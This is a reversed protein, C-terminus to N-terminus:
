FGRKPKPVAEVEIKMTRSRETAILTQLTDLLHQLSHPTYGGIWNELGEDILRSAQAFKGMAVSRGFTKGAVRKAVADQEEQSLGRGRIFMEGSAESQAARVLSGLNTMQLHMEYEEAVALAHANFTRFHRAKRWAYYCDLTFLVVVTVIFAVRWPSPAYANWAYAICVGWPMGMIIGLHQKHLLSLTWATQSMRMSLPELNPNKYKRNLLKLLM